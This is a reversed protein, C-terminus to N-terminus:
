GQLGGLLVVGGGLFTLHQVFVRRSVDDETDDKMLPACHEGPTGPHCTSSLGWELPPSEVVTSQRPPNAVIAARM